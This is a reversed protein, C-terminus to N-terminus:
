SLAAGRSQLPACVTRGRKTKYVGLLLLGVILLPFVSPEPVQLRVNDLQIGGSWYGDAHQVVGFYATWLGDSPVSFSRSGWLTGDDIQGVTGNVQGGIRESYSWSGGYSVLSLFDSGNTIQAFPHGGGEWLPGFPQWEWVLQEGTRGVFDQGISGAYYQPVLLPNSLAPGGEATPTPMGPPPYQCSRPNFLDNACSISGSFPSNVNWNSTAVVLASLNGQLPPIGNANGVPAVYALPREVEVGKWSNAIDVTWGMLNPQEFGGNQIPEAVAPNSVAVAAFVFLTFLTRM